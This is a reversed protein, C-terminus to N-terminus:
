LFMCLMYSSFYILNLILIVEFFRIEQVSFCCMQRTELNQYAKTQKRKLRRHHIGGSNCKSVDETYELFERGSDKEKGLKLQTNEGYRLNYHEAGGRLAFNLGLLFLLTDRLKEPTDTGLIGKEGCVMKM